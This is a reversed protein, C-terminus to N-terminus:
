SDKKLIHITFLSDIILKAAFTVSDDDFDSNYRIFASSRQWYCSQYDIINLQSDKRNRLWCSWWNDAVDALDEIMQELIAKLQVLNVSRCKMCENKM